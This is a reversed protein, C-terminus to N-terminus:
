ILEYSQVSSMRILLLHRQDLCLNVNDLATTSMPRWALDILLKRSRRRRRSLNTASVTRWTPRRTLNTRGSRTWTVAWRFGTWDTAAAATSPRTRATQYASYAARWAARGAPWAGESRWWGAFPSSERTSQCCSICWSLMLLASILRRELFVDTCHDM